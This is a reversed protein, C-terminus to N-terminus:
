LDTACWQRNSGGYCFILLVSDFLTSKNPGFKTQRM